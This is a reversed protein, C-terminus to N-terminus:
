KFYESFLNRHHLSRNPEILLRSFKYYFSDNAIKLLEQLLKFAGPDYARHTNGVLDNEDKIFKFQQPLANGSHECSLILKM